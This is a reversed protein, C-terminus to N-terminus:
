DKRLCDGCSEVDTPYRVSIEDGSKDMFTDTDLSIFDDEESLEDYDDPRYLWNFSNMSINSAQLISRAESISALLEACEMDGENIREHPSIVAGKKILVKKYTCKNVGLKSAMKAFEVIEKYTSRMIIFKLNIRSVKDYKRFEKINNVIKDFYDYGHIKKYTERKGANLSINLSFLKDAYKSLKNLLVGNTTFEILAHSNLYQAVLDLKNLYLLPEGGILRLIRLNKGYKKLLYESNKSFIDHFSTKQPIICFICKLNCANGMHISIELPGAIKDIDGKVYHYYATKVFEPIEANIGRVRLPDFSEISKPRITLEGCQQYCYKATGKIIEKRLNIFNANKWPDYNEPTHENYLIKEQRKLKCCPMVGYERMLMTRWAAACYKKVASTNSLPLNSNIEFIHRRTHYIGDSCLVKITISYKGDAMNKDETFFDEYGNRPKFYEGADIFISQLTFKSTFKMPVLAIRKGIKENRLVLLAPANDPINGIFDLCFVFDPRIIEKYVPEYFDLFKKKPLTSEAIAMAQDFIQPM